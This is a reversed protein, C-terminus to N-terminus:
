ERVHGVLTAAVESARSVVLRHREVSFIMAQSVMYLTMGALVLGSRWGLPDNLRGSVGEVAVIGICLFSLSVATVHWWLFGLQKPPRLVMFAMLNTLVMFGLGIGFAAFTAFRVIDFLTM